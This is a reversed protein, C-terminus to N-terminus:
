NLQFNELCVRARYNAKKSNEYYTFIFDKLFINYINVLSYRGYFTLDKSCIYINLFTHMLWYNHLKTIKINIKSSNTIM